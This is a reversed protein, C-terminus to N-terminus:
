EGKSRVRWGRGRRRRRGEEVEDGGGVSPEEEEEELLLFVRADSGGEEIGDGAIMDEERRKIRDEFEGADTGDRGQRRIGVAGDEDFDVVFVEQM